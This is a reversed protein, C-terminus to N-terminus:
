LFYIKLIITRRFSTFPRLFISEEGHESHCLPKRIITMRFSTFSRLFISEESHESHCLSERNLLAVM